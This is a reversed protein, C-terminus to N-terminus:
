DAKSTFSPLPIFMSVEKMIIAYEEGRNQINRKDMEPCSYFQFLGWMIAAGLWAETVTTTEPNPDGFHGILGMGVWFLTESFYNPHRSLGWLGGRFAKKSGEASDLHVYEQGSKKQYLETRFDSLQKDALYALVVASFTIVFSIM